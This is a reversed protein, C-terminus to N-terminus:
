ADPGSFRGAIDLQRCRVAAVLALVSLVPWRLSLRRTPHFRDLLTLAAVALILTTLVTNTSMSWKYVYLLVTTVVALAAFAPWTARPAGALNVAPLWRGVGIALFALLPGYM